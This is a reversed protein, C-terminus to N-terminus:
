GEATEFGERRMHIRGGEIVETADRPRPDPGVVTATTSRAASQGPHDIQPRLYSSLTLSYSTSISPTADSCPALRHPRQRLRYSNTQSQPILRFLPHLFPAAPNGGHISHPHLLCRVDHPDLSRSRLATLDNATKDFHDPTGFLYKM